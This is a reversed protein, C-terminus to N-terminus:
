ASPPGLRDNLLRRARYIRTEVAKPTIGLMAAVEKQSREEIVALILAVKLDHPLADVAQRALTLREADAAHADPRPGRDAPEWGASGERGPFPDHWFARHAHKSRAHDRCLNIGIRFLWTVFKAKPTFDRIHFYARVFTEQALDRAVTENRTYRVLFRFLPERHRVMLESLARDEGRQLAFVLELDPDDSM